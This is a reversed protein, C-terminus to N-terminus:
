QLQDIITQALRLSKGAEEWCDLLDNYSKHSAYDELMECTQDTYIKITQVLYAAEEDTLHLTKM